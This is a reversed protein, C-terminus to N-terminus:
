IEWACNNTCDYCCNCTTEDEMLESKYPCTHDPEAPCQECTPCKHDLAEQLTALRKNM